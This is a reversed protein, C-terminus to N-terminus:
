LKHINTNSLVLKKNYCITLFEIHTVRCTQKVGCTQPSVELWSVLHTIWHFSKEKPAILRLLSFGAPNYGNDYWTPECPGSWGLTAHTPGGRGRQKEWPALPQLALLV